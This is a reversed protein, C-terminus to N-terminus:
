NAGFVGHSAIKTHPMVKRLVLDGVQFPRAKVKSNYYRTTRQQYAVLREQSHTRIEELLDLQLRHNVMNAESEYGDRRFSGQEM